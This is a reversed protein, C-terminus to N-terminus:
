TRLACGIGRRGAEGDSVKRQLDLDHHAINRVARAIAWAGHHHGREHWRASVRGGPQWHPECLAVGRNLANDPLPLAMDAVDAAEVRTVWPQWLAAGVGIVAAVVAFAAIAPWLWRSRVTSNAVRAPPVSVHAVGEYKVQFARVARAINKVKVDGLDDLPYPLKDRILDRVGRSICIGAPESLAELRAAINVGDGYIDDGEVIVDSQNIGVRLIIRKDEAVDASRAEMARQVDVACEVAGVVSAFEVLQGDGMTKVVRGGYEDIKLDWLEKRLARLAALTGSEDTGMLRSYGVVDMALIASLRREDREEAM